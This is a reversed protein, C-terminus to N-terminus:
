WWYNNEVFDRFNKDFVIRIDYKIRATYYFPIAISFRLTTHGKLGMIFYIIEYKILSKVYKWVRGAIERKGFPANRYATYSKSNGSYILRNNLYTQTMRSPPIIHYIVSTGVYAFKIGLGLKIIDQNLGTEGDGLGPKSGFLDPHFGGTKFFIDRKVAEFCGFVGLDYDVIKTEDGQDNLSLLHNKCYKEIWSPPTVKWEPLVRGTAVGVNVNDQFVKVLETLLNYDAIMDDDTFLM